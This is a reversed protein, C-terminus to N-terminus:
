WAKKRNPIRFYGQWPFVALGNGFAAIEAGSDDNFSMNTAPGRAELTVGNGLYFGTHNVTLSYDYYLVDGPEIGDLGAHWTAGVEGLM